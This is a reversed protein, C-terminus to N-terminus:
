PRSFRPSFLLQTLLFPQAIPQPLLICGLSAAAKSPHLALALSRGPPKSMSFSIQPSPFLRKATVQPSDCEECWASAELADGTGPEAPIWRGHGGRHQPGTDSGM